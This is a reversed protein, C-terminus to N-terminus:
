VSEKQRAAKRARKDAYMQDDAHKILVDLDIGDSLPEAYYGISALVLYANDSMRNCSDLYNQFRTSYDQYFQEETGQPILAAVAFEDGGFRACIENGAASRQLAHAVTIIANDGELHGYTDNITKLGDLDASIFIVSLNQETNDRVQRRFERYFGRRNYLGTMSDRIYLRDLEANVERLRDNMQRIQIKGHFTGLAANMSNMFAYIKEFEEFTFETQFVCYGLPHDLFHIASVIIPDTRELMLEELPILKRCSLACPQGIRWFYRHFLVDMEDTFPKGADMRETAAANDFFDQNLAFVTSHFVFKNTLLEPLEDLSSMQAIYSQLLCMWVMLRKYSGNSADLELIAENIHEFSIKDCGCSQSKVIEFDVTNFAPVKKGALADLITQVLRLGMEDYNPRCTTLHPIHYGAQQTGDFGTVICSKPVLYGHTQLYICVSIAMSDNACIIADPVERQEEEFWRKMTATTPYDWFEGYGVMDESFPLGAKQLARKFGLLRDDSFTNDKQGAMMLLNKAGHEEIVHMVIREFVDTYAFSYSICGPVQKDITIVPLGAALAEEIVEYVVPNENLFRPFIILASLREYPILRFVSEEGIIDPTEPMMPDTCANFVLLRFGHAVAHRNLAKVLHYRDEQHITSLCIGILRISDTEAM